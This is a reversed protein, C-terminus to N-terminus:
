IWSAVGTTKPDCYTTKWNHQGKCFPCPRTLTLPDKEKKKNPSTQSGKNKYPAQGDTQTQAATTTTQSAPTTESKPFAGAYWGYNDDDSNSDNEQSSGHQKPEEKESVSTNRRRWTLFLYV